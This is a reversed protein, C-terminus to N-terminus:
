RLLTISGYQEITGLEPARSSSFKMVYAYSGPPALAGRSTKGDWRFGKDNSTYILEGWRNYILIIFTDVYENPFVFFEENVGNGNPSFANPAVITPRCGETVVVQDTICTFGNYLTVEYTGPTTTSLIPDTSIITEEPLLRWEYSNFIGPDLDVAPNESDSSCFSATEPLLLDEPLIPVIEVTTSESVVCTGQENTVIATYTGATNITLISDSDALRNGEADRWEYTIGPDFYNPIAALFLNSSRECDPTLSLSINFEPFVEVAIPESTAECGTLQDTVTVTYTGSTTVANSMSQGGDSWNYIISESESSVDAILTIVGDCAEGEATVSVTPDANFNVTINENRICFNTATATVSFIVTGTGSVEVTEGEAPSSLISGNPDVTSWTYTVGPTTGADTVSINGSPGCIEQIADFSFAPENGPNITIQETETCGPANNDTVEIFYTGPDLPTFNTRSDGGNFLVNGAEDEISYSFNAPVSSLELEVEGDCTGGVNAVSFNFTIPDEIQVVEMYDCGSVLNTVTLTYNGPELGTITPATAVGDFNAPGFPTPGALEYSFSGSSNFSIDLTGTGNCDAPSTSAVSVDPEPQINIQITDRGICGFRNTVEVTYETVGVRTSDIPFTRNTGAALAGDISWAYTARPVLADLSGAEDNQCITRDAGLDVDPRADGMFVQLTDSTCGTVTNIIAVDIFGEESVTVERTTDGTSWYYSFDPNDEPWATLIISQDCLATDRPVAPSEPITNITITQRLTTDTDCRNSLVLQVTYTGPASYTHTTDQAAASTGDGFIWLYNEIQNNPDRGVASFSSEQGACGETVTMSPEQLPPSEIQAFNPLGLRSIRGGLNFGQDSFGAGDDDGDPSNVTGLTESNDIAMYMIGNPGTQLAGYNAGQPYGDFKTDSIDTVPDESNLSDLDYQILKSNESSTTLYLRTGGPSFELGYLDSEETDILRPNSIAGEVIDLDLIEVENTGPINVAVQQLTPSIKMYGTASEESMFEHSAGVPSFIPSSLGEPGTAYSRFTNNGFEHALILDNGTFGSGTIRETSNDMLKINKVVVKGLATDGKMDVVSYRLAYEDDGYVRETTFVYFMTEDGGYPMIISNQASALDGGISDGNLMIDHDRNWVTSGNTYFLLDGNVDSVTACGEPADQQNGDLIALPGNTFEIGAQEGFYWQNSVQNAVGYETVEIDDFGTCGNATTVEVWYTGATDVQITQTFEGTNWVFSTGEGADLELVEDVCITTDNGLDVMLDNELIDVSLVVTDLLGAVEAILQVALPGADQYEHNAIWNNSREGDGFDWILSNPVPEVIPFFKTINTLCSDIWYFGLTDFTFTYGPSFAPFQRGNLDEPFVIPQYQVSDITSDPRNISGLNIPDASTNQYLHYIRDDPAKQLGFSRFIPAPLIPNVTETSDNLDLQYLQATTGSSGFRSFYIKSGDNSWEIDYLSEGADDDFGTTLLQRDFTLEGTGTDFDMMWINRNSRQPAMVLKASDVNFAFHSAAFGPTTGDTFDYNVTAGIGSGDIRTVQIQFDTSNQSLLWFLEGNGRPVILMGESPSILGTSNNLSTVDGYPFEASGNGVLSANATSYQIENAGTSGSNTFLYYQGPNGVVPCVVIPTNIAPNGSLGSGGPVVSHSVDYVASGDSYFLLNGTFQDTITASGGLGFPTAQDSQLFVERGNPDFVINEASNGFYWRTETINQAQLGVGVLLFTLLFLMRKGIFRYPARSKFIDKNM